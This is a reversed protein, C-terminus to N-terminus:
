PRRPRLRGGGPHLSRAGRREHGGARTRDRRARDPFLRAAEAIALATAAHDGTVMVPRIGAGLCQTVAEIAEDRPPDLLGVLGLLVLGEEAHADDLEGGIDGLDKEALALVRLGRSSLDHIRAEWTEHDLETDGNDGRVSQCMELLRDPGEVLLRAEGDLENLTAM